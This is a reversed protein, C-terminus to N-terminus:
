GDADVAVLQLAAPMRELLRSLPVGELPHVWDPAVDAAPRLVHADTLLDPRPLRVPTDAVLADYLLIDIDLSRSSFRPGSRDRGAADELARLRALLAAPELTTRVSAAANLFDPGDFGVAATRYVPSFRVAEFTDNLAAMCRRLNHEPALNSGLSLLARHPAESM